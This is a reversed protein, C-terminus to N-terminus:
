FRIFLIMLFNGDIMISFIKSFCTSQSLKILLSSLKLFLEENERIGIKATPDEKNYPSLLEHASYTAGCKDCQNM